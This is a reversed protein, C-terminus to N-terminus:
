IEQVYERNQLYTMEKKGRAKNRNEFKLRNAIIREVVDDTELQHTTDVVRFIGREKPVRYPDVTPPGASRDMKTSSGSVVVKINLVKLLDTTVEWPAGIVVEDVYKCSLVNLVREHLNMIPYNRGKHQNVTKDDHVGVYLFTGCEKAKRLTEVHGVHFLDFAGDIYVVVDDPKPARNNSFQSIRWTTPLFNSIGRSSAALHDQSTSAAPAAASVSPQTPAAAAADAPQAPQVPKWASSEAKKREELLQQVPSQSREGGAAGGPGGLALPPMEAVSVVSASHVPSSVTVQALSDTSVHHTKTMLLLRGVLDTTSIGETRKIVRMRGAKKVKAYADEGTATSAVDDGHVCFDCNLRDLLELSPDYPTDFVVEDVWKCSKVIALREDNNMVPPGKNRIIEEDSHVGVVLVDGLMKAQRIANYHGSHMIDFCGDIYVRVPKKPGKATQSSKFEAAVAEGSLGLVREVAGLVAQTRDSDSLSPYQAAVRAAADELAKAFISTAMLADIDGAAQPQAM